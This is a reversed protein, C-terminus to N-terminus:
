DSQPMQLILECCAPLRWCCMPQWLFPYHQVGVVVGLDTSAVV